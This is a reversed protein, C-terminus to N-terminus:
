VNKVRIFQSLTVDYKGLIINKFYEKDKKVETVSLNENDMRTLEKASQSVGIHQKSVTMTVVYSTAFISSFTVLIIIMFYKKERLFREFNHRLITFNM